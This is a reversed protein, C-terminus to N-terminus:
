RSPCDKDCSCHFADCACRCCKKSLKEVCAVCAAGLSDVCGAACVAIKAACEIAEETKCKCDHNPAPGDDEGAKCTAKEFAALLARGRTCQAMSKTESDKVLLQEQCSKFFNDSAETGTANVSARSVECMRVVQSAQPPASGVAFGLLAITIISKLLM